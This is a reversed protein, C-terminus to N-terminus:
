IKINPIIKNNLNNLQNNIKKNINDIESNKFCQENIAISDALISQAIFLEKKANELNNKVKKMKTLLVQEDM